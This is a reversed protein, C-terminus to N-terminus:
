LGSVTIETGNLFNYSGIMPIGNWATFTRKFNETEVLTQLAAAKYANLATKLRPHMYLFTDSSDAEIGALLDDIQSATPLDPTLPTTDIDINCIASVYRANALM